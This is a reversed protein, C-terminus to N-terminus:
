PAEIGHAAADICVPAEVVDEGHCYVCLMTEDIADEQPYGLARPNAKGAALWEGATSCAFLPEADVENWKSDTFTKGDAEAPYMAETM